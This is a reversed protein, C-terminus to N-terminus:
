GNSARRPQVPAPDATVALAGEGEGTLLNMGALRERTASAPQPHGYLYGQGKLNGYQRLMDFIAENEVGEVTVPLGLGKGLLAIAHVIAANDANESLSTVFSRDIKIRDFPLNRLQALSSYGTGFDDLSVRIGQNRLSAILSRVAGINEHLCSETIEIELRQPPFNAAVLLKLLKQAFWPDRLQMPSINVALTLGPDWDRADELAQAIVCQSLETIMGIEEAVPIFIEPSVDGLNPSHWRALMEFGTLKGTELDIQQEYFPVFEGRAIGARIGESLKKRFTLEDRMNPEFWAHRNRGQSKAHYMAMDAMHLMANSRNEDLDLGPCDSRALGISATVMITSAGCDIPVAVREILTEALTEVTGALRPEVPLVCAFEDGGLRALTAGEPLLSAIRRACEVLVLDGMSHGNLDNIQKFNDLDIMLFILVKGRKGCDELMRNAIEAIGRRNLFGTLPDTEALTRAQTEAKRRVDRQHYPPHHQPWGFIIMAINLLLANVLVRDPPLGAGELSRITQPLVSSGTGVFMIVAAFAVALALIDRGANGFRSGAKNPGDSSNRDLAM